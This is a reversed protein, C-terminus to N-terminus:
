SCYWIQIRNHVATHLGSEFSCCKFCPDVSSPNWNMMCNRNPFNINFCCSCIDWQLEIPADNSESCVFQLVIVNLWQTLAILPRKALLPTQLNCRPFSTGDRRAFLMFGLWHLSLKRGSLIEEKALSSHHGHSLHGWYIRKSAQPHRYLVVVFIDHYHYITPM